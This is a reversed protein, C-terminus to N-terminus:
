NEYYSFSKDGPNYKIINLKSVLNKDLVPIVVELFEDDDINATFLNSLSSNFDFFVDRSNNVTFKNVLEPIGGNSRYIEVHIDNGEKIKVAQYEQDKLDFRLTALVDRKQPLVYTLIKNRNSPLLIVLSFLLGVVIPLIM